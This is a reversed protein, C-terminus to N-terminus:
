CVYLNEYGPIKMKRFVPVANEVYRRYLWRVRQDLYYSLAIGKKSIDRRRIRGILQELDKKNCPWALHLHSLPNFNAGTKIAQITAVLMRVKRSLLAKTLSETYRRNSNTGGYLVNSDAIGRERLVEQILHLHAVRKVAILVSRGKRWDHIAKRVILNNRADNASLEMALDHLDLNHRDHKYVFETKIIRVKRLAVSSHTSRTTTLLRKVPPGLLAPMAVNPGTDSKPTATASVIYACPCESIFRQVRPEDIHQSEDLIVCGFNDFLEPWRAERRQLTAVSALTFWRGIKWTSQQIFGLDCKAIGFAKYIDRIWADRILNTVCIVLTRQNLSAPIAAQLITKGVATHGILLINGHPRSGGKRVSKLAAAHLLKQERSLTIKRAPFDESRFIRKDKLQYESFEAQAKKSLILEPDFGRPLHLRNRDSDFDAYSITRPIADSVTGYPSYRLAESYAPNVYTYANLVEERLCESPRRLTLGNRLFAKKPKSSM